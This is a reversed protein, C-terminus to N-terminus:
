VSYINHAATQQDSGRQYQSHRYEFCVYTNRYESYIDILSLRLEAINERMVRRTMGDWTRNKERENNTFCSICFSEPASLISEGDLRVYRNSLTVCIHCTSVASAEPSNYTNTHQLLIFTCPTDFINPCRDAPNGDKWATIFNCSYSLKILECGLEGSVRASLQNRLYEDFKLTVAGYLGSFDSIWFRRSVPYKLYM